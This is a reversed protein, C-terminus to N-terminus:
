TLVSMHVSASMVALFYEIQLRHMCVHHLLEAAAPWALALIAERSLECPTFTGHLVVDIAAGTARFYPGSLAFYRRPMLDPRSSKM